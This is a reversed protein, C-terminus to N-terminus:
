GSSFDTGCSRLSDCSPLSPQSEPWITLGRPSTVPWTSPFYRPCGSGRKSRQDLLQRQLAKLRQYRGEAHRLLERGPHGVVATIEDSDGLQWKAITAEWAAVHACFRLLVQPMGDDILLDGRQIICDRLQRNLPMLVHEVWVTWETRDVLLLGDKDIVTVEGPCHAEMFTRWAVDTSGAITLMPGYLEALQRNVRILQDNRESLRRSSRQSAVLSLGTVALAAIASIFAATV